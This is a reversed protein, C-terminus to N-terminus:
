QQPIPLGDSSFLKHKARMEDLYDRLDKADTFSTKKQGLRVHVQTKGVFVYRMRGHKAPLEFIYSGLNEQEEKDVVVVPLDRLRSEIQGIEERSTLLLYPSVRGSFIEYTVKLQMKRDSDAFCPATQVWGFITAAVLLARAKSYCDIM